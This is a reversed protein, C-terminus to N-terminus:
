AFKVPAQAKRKGIQERRVFHRAQRGEILSPPRFRRNHLFGPKQPRGDHVESM